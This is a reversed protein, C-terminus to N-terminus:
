CTPEGLSEEYGPRMVFGSDKQLSQYLYPFWFVPTKGVYVTVNSFVVRDHQYIRVTRARLYYDPKPPIARPSSRM